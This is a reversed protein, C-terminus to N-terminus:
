WALATGSGSDQLTLPSGLGWKEFVPAVLTEAPVPTLTVAQSLKDGRLEIRTFGEATRATEFSVGDRETSALIRQAASANLGHAQLHLVESMRGSLTVIVPYGLRRVASDVAAAAVVRM